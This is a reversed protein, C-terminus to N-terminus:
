GPKLPPAPPRRLVIIAVVIAAIILLIFEVPIHLNSLGFGAMWTFPNFGVSWSNWNIAPFPSPNKRRRLTDLLGGADEGSYLLEGESTTLYYTPPGASKYGKDKLAWHNSPYDKVLVNEGLTPWDPHAVLEKAAKARDKDGVITLRLALSDDLLRDPDKKGGALLDEAAGKDIEAGNFSFYEGGSALETKDLGYNICGKPAGKTDGKPPDAKTADVVPAPPIPTSPLPPAVEPPIPIPPAAPTFIRGDFALYKGTLTSVVGVQKSDEFLAKQTPDDTPRWTWDSLMLFILMSIM